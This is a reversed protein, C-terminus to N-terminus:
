PVTVVLKERGVHRRGGAAAPEDLSVVFEYEGRALFVLDLRLTASAGAAVAALPRQLVGNVAVRRGMDLAAAAPLHRLSPQLRLLGRVAAPATNAVTVAVAVFADRPVTWHARGTQTGGVVALGLRVPEVRMIDVMQATIRLARLEIDGTRRVDRGQASVSSGSNFHETWTGDLSALLRERYWFIQRQVEAGGSSLSAGLAGDVLSDQRGRVSAPRIYQKPPRLRPIERDADIDGVRRVPVLLRNTHGPEIVDRAVFLPQRVAGLDADDAAPEAYTRIEVSLANPWSNRLDLLMLCYDDVDAFALGLPMDFTLPVFDCGALEISANVTLEVDVALTRVYAAEGGGTFSYELEVRGATLGRKGLVDIALEADSNPEIAVDLVVAGLDGDGSRGAATLAQRQLLFVEIEYIESPTLAPGDSPGLAQLLPEVTSDTFRVALYDVRVSESANALVLRLRRREGELLMLANQPVLTEKLRLFPLAPVVEAEVTKRDAPAVASARATGAPLPVLRGRERAGFVALGTTKPRPPEVVTPKRTSVPLETERCGVVRFRCGTVRLPGVATPTLFVSVAHIDKPPVTTSVVDSMYGGDAVLALSAVELAVEFPNQLRVVFEVPENLVLLDKPQEAPKRGFAAYIFPGAAAATPAAAGRGAQPVSWLSTREIDVDRVFYDDWYVDEFDQIGISKAKAYADRMNGVLRLQEDRSLDFGALRLFMTTYKVVGVYDPLVQCLAIATRLISGKVAPWGHPAFRAMDFREASPPVGYISCVDDLLDVVGTDADGAAAVDGGAKSPSGPAASVARAQVIRPILEVVLQRLVFARKRLFGLKGCVTAIGTLIRSADVADVGDLRVSCAITIWSMVTMRNPYAAPTAPPAEARLPSSLVAHARGAPTWGGALVVATLLNCLRLVTEVYTVQPLTEGPFNQSRTYLALVASTTEPVLDLLHPPPGGPPPSARADDAGPLVISPVAFPVGLYALVVMCVCIGELAAAHWLHDNAGKLVNAAEVYERLADPTRGALLYLNALVKTYRGRRRQRQRESHHSLPYALAGPRDRTAPLSGTSDKGGPPASARGGMNAGVPSGAAPADHAIVVADHEDDRALPSAIAEAAQFARALLAMDALVEATLDCLITRMSTAKSARKPPVAVFGAPLAAQDLPCDFLLVRHTLAQPYKARLAAVTGALEEPGTLQSYDALAFVALMRRYLELDELLRHHTDVATTFNYVVIGDPFGQPSFMVRDPRQDPTIDGLRIVATAQLRAVYQLFTSRSIPGASCLFTNIRAPATYAFSDLSATHVDMADHLGAYTTATTRTTPSRSLVGGCAACGGDVM